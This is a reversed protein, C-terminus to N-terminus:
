ILFIKDLIRLMFYHVHTPDLFEPVVTMWSLWPMYKFKRRKFHMEDDRRGGMKLITERMDDVQVTDASM